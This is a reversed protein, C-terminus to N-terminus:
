PCARFADGGGAADDPGDVLRPGLDDDVDLQELDVAGLQEFVAQLERRGADGPM